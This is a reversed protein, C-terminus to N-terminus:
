IPNISIININYRIERSIPNILRDPCPRVRSDFPQSNSDEYAPMMCPTRTLMENGSQQGPRCERTAIFTAVSAIYNHRSMRSIIHRSTRSIYTAVNAIYTAVNAIYQVNKLSIIFYFLYLTAVVSAAQLSVGISRCKYLSMWSVHLSRLNYSCTENMSQKRTHILSRPKNQVEVFYDFHQFHKNCVTNIIVVKRIEIIIAFSSISAATIGLHQM